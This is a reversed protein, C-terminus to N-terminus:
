KQEEKGLAIKRVMEEIRKRNKRSLIYTSFGLGILFLFGVIILFDLRRSVSLTKIIPNLVNPFLTVLLFLGWMVTWAAFEGKRFEKRKLSLFTYYIMFLGFLLGLIQITIIKVV